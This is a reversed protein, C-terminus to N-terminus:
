AIAGMKSDCSVERLMPFKMNVYDETHAQELLMMRLNGFIVVCGELSEALAKLACNHCNIDQCIKSTTNTINPYLQQASSYALFFMLTRYHFSFQDYTSVDEFVFLM